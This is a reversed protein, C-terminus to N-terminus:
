LGAARRWPPLGWYLITPKLALHGWSAQEQYEIGGMFAEECEAFLQSGLPQEVVGGFQHVLRMAIRGDEKSEHSRSCYKGWPGCPPHALVPGPGAYLRADREVGWCDADPLNYYVSGRMVWLVAVTRVGYARRVRDLLYQAFPLPTAARQRKSLSELKRLM